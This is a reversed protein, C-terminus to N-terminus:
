GGTLREHADGQKAESLTLTVRLGGWENSSFDLGAGNGWRNVLRHHINRLGCSMEETSPSNYICRKLEQLEDPTMGGGDDDVTLIYQNNMVAGKLLIKGSDRKRELGHVIANEVVPQLLLTPVSLALMQAPIDIEYYLRKNRLSQVELYSEILKIEDFLCVETGPKRTIYRYFQSLNKSMSVVADPSKHAMSVIYFLCNYLFHPNIQSQLHKYEAERTRVREEYVNEILAQIRSAMENFREFLYDFENNTRLYARSKYDGAGLNEIKRVLYGFPMRFHRYLFFAFALGTLFLLFLSGNVLLSVKQLPRLFDDLQIYSVLTGELSPSRITQVLYDVGDMELVTHTPHAAAATDEFVKEAELLLLLKFDAQHNSVLPAGSFYFFSTGNGSLDMGQLVSKLYEGSVSTEVVSTVNSFDEAPFTPNTFILHFSLKGNQDLRFWKNRPAMVLQEVTLSEKSKSSITEGISPWYVTLSSILRNAESQITLKEEVSKRMLLHDVYEPFELSSSYAKMNSDNVLLVSQTEIQRLSQELSEITFELQKSASNELTEQLVKESSRNAYGFLLTAPVILIALMMILRQFTKYKVM